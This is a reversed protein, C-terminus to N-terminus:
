KLNLKEHVFVTCHICKSTKSLQSYNIDYNLITNMVATTIKTKRTSNKMIQWHHIHCESFYLMLVVQAALCDGLQDLAALRLYAHTESDSFCSRSLVQEAARWDKMKSLVVGLVFYVSCRLQM